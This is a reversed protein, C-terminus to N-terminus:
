LVVKWISTQVDPPELKTPHVKRLPYQSVFDALFLHKQCFKIHANSLVYGICEPCVAYHRCGQRDCEYWGASFTLKFVHGYKECSTQAM